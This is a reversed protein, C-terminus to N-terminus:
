RPLLAEVRDAGFRCIVTLKGAENSPDLIDILRLLEDPTMSPGAKLGVPNGVGRLFEVHAGDTQRTRDGVWLM